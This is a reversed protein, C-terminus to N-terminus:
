AGGRLGGEELDLLVAVLVLVVDPGARIWTGDMWGDECGDKRGDM